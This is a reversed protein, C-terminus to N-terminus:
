MMELLKAINLITILCKRRICSSTIYPITIPHCLSLRLCKNRDILFSFTSWRPPPPPPTINMTQKMKYGFKLTHLYLVVGLGIWHGIHSNFIM